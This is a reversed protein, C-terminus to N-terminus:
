AQNALLAVAFTADYDSPWCAVRSLEGTDVHWAVLYATAAGKPVVSFLVTDADLWARPTLAGGDVYHSSEDRVPLFARTALSGRGLVILGDRDDAAPPDPFSTNARAAAISADGVVPRQLNELPGLYTRSVVRGAELDRESLESAGAPGSGAVVSGDPAPAWAVHGRLFGLERREGTGLDVRVGARDGRLVVADGGPIWTVEIGQGLVSVPVDVRTWPGGLERWFFGSVGVAAVRTGDPSLSVTRWAALGAPLDLPAQRGDRGVLLAADERDLLAVATDVEGDLGVPLVRPVGLDLVPLDEIGRPDWVPQIRDLPIAPAVVPMRTSASSAPDAPADQTTPDGAVVRTAVVLVVVAAASALASTLGRSRTRRRRAEALSAAALGPSEILDTARDLVDHLSPDNM